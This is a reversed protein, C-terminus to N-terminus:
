DLQLTFADTHHFDPKGAPHRLAWYSLIADVDEIVASLGLRLPRGPPLLDRSIEATLELRDKTRHVVIGPTFEHELVGGNRYGRFDYLAWEGSPSLNFERYEPGEGQMVFVEFCTHQWLNDVRGPSRSEPINLASVDGTLRFTLMLCGSEVQEVVVDIERISPSSNQPHATLTFPGSDITEM